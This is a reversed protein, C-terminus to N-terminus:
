ERLAMLWTAELTVWATVHPIERASRVMHEAILRRNGRLPEFSTEGSGRVAPTRAPASEAAESAETVDERTIRGDPGSGAIAALDVGLERALKRIPPTARVAPEPEGDGRSRREM